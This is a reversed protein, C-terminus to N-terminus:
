GLRVNEPRKQVGKSAANLKQFQLGMSWFLHRGLDDDSFRAANYTHTVQLIDEKTLEQVRDTLFPDVFDDLM